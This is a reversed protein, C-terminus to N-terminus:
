FKITASIRHSYDLDYDKIRYFAYDLEWNYLLFGVGYTWDGDDNGLRFLVNRTIAYEGGFHFQYSNKEKNVEKKKEMDAAIYMLDLPPYYQPEEEFFDPINTPLAKIKPPAILLVKM